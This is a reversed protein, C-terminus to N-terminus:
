AELQAILDDMDAAPHLDKGALGDEIARATTENPIHIDFPIGKNLSVQTFFLTVAQSTTLGLAKLVAEANKKVQPDLRVTITASKNM